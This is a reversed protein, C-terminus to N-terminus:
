ESQPPVDITGEAQLEFFANDFDQQRQEAQPHQRSFVFAGRRRKLVESELRPFRNRQMADEVPDRYDLLYHGRGRTLMKLASTHTSTFTTVVGSNEAALEDLLGGYTYGTILIVIHGRLDELRRVPLREPLHWTSLSIRIPTARSELVRGELMPVGAVGLWLDVRGNKLYLYTRGIPLMQFELRYGAKNAVTRALEIFRGDPEGAENMMTYPPFEVYATRLVKDPQAHVAQVLCVLFLLCLWGHATLGPLRRGCRHSM